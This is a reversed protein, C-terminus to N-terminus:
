TNPTLHKVTNKDSHEKVLEIDFKTLAIYIESRIKINEREALAIATARHMGEIIIVGDRTKLGLM